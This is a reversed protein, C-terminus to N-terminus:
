LMSFPLIRLSDNTKFLASEKLILNASSSPRGNIKKLFVKKNGTKNRASFISGEANEYCKELIEYDYINFMNDM